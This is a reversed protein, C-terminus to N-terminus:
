AVLGIQGDLTLIVRSGSKIPWQKNQIIKQEREYSMVKVQQSQEKCDTGCAKHVPLIDAFLNEGFGEDLDISPHENKRLTAM